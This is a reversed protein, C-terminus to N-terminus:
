WITSLTPHLKRYKVSKIIKSTQIYKVHKKTESYTPKSFCVFLLQLLECPIYEVRFLATALHLSSGSHRTTSWPHSSRSLNLSQELKCSTVLEVSPDQTYWLPLIRHFTIISIIYTIHHYHGHRLM